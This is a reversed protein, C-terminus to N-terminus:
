VIQCQLVALKGCDYFMDAGISTVGDPLTINTLNSCRSFAASGISTVSDPITINTLSSCGEFAAYGISTVSDSITINTLSSCGNFACDPIQTVSDPIEVFGIRKNNLYLKNAYSMPNSNSNGFGINLYGVIDTIYVRELNNCDSFASYGINTVGNGLYISTLGSCGSFAWGGISLVSDSIDVRTLGHCENFAYEGIQTIGNEIVLSKIDNRDYFPSSAYKYNEMDGTGSITLAGNQDLTWTVNDGCTGSTEAVVIVPMFACLMSLVLVFSLIKKKM